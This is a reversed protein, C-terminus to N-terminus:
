AQSAAAVVVPGHRQEYKNKGAAAANRELFLGSWEDDDVARNQSTSFKKKLQKCYQETPITKGRRNETNSVSANMEVM